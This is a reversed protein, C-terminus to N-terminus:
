CDIHFCRRASRSSPGDPRIPRMPRSLRASNWTSSGSSAGTTSRNRSYPSIKRLGYVVAASHPATSEIWSSAAAYASRISPSRSRSRHSTASCSTTKGGLATAGQPQDRQLLDDVALEHVQHQDLRYQRRHRPDPQAPVLEVARS